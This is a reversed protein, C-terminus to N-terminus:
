ISTSNHVNEPCSTCVAFLLTIYARRFDEVGLLVMDVFAAEQLDAGYMNLKRGLHRMIADMQGIIADGDRLTPAQGFPWDVSGAGAQKAIIKEKFCTHEFNMLRM